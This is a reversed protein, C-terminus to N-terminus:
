IAKTDVSTVNKTEELIGYDAEVLIYGEHTTVNSNKYNWQPGIVPFHSGHKLARNLWPMGADELIVRIARELAELQWEQVDIISSDLDMKFGTLTAHSYLHDGEMNPVLLFELTGLVSLIHNTITENDHGNVALLSVMGPVTLFIGRKSSQFKPPAPMEFSLQISSEPFDEFVKPFTRRLAYAELPLIEHLVSDAPVLDVNFPQLTYKLTGSKYLSYGLSNFVYDSIWIYTMRTSIDTRNMPTAAFPLNGSPEDVYIQGEVSVDVYNDTFYPPNVFGFAMDAIGPIVPANLMQERLQVGFNQVFGEVEACAKEKIDNELSSRISGSFLSYLWSKGGTLEIDLSDLTALCAGTDLTPQGLEDSGILVELEFTLGRIVIYFTGIDSVTFFFARYSYSWNGVVTAHADTINLMLGKGPISYIEASSTDFELFKVGDVQYKVTGVVLKSTGNYAPLPEGEVEGGLEALISNLLHDFGSQTLRGVIGPNKARGVITKSIDLKIEVDEEAISISIAFLVFLSLRSITAIVPM